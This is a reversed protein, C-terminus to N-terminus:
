PNRARHWALWAALAATKEEKRWAGSNQPELGALEKALAADSRGLAEGALSWVAKQDVDEVHRGPKALAHRLSDRVAIGEEIHIQTHSATARELTEAARGRSVLIGVWGIEEGHLREIGRLAGKTHRRQKALGRDVAAQPDEPPPVRDLGDFGGAVHFPECAERDDPDATEIRESHLVRLARGGTAVVCLTAWGLHAAVGIAARRM